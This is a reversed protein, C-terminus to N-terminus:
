IIYPIISIRRVNMEVNNSDTQEIINERTCKSIQIWNM